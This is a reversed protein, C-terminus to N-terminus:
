TKGEDDFLDKQSITAKGEITIDIIETIELVKNTERDISASGSVTVNHSLLSAVTEELEDDSYNCKILMGDHQQIHFNKRDLAVRMGVGKVERIEEEPKQILSRIYKRVNLDFEIKPQKYPRIEVYDIGHFKAPALHKIIDLVRNQFQIDPILDDLKEAHQTALRLAIELMTSLSKNPIEIDEFMEIQESGYDLDLGIQFSGYATSTVRLQCRKELKIIETNRRVTAPFGALSRAVYNVVQQFNWTFDSLLRLPITGNIVGPGDLKIWLKSQEEEMERIGLYEDIEARTKRIEMFYPELWIKLRKPHIKEKRLKTVMEELSSLYTKTVEYQENNEIM